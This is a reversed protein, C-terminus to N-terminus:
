LGDYILKAGVLLMMAYILRYFRAADIRRVVHVGAWTSLLAVPALMASHLLNAHTFQGLAAYGPVKIWNMFAFAIATTGVLVDRPLRRPLVWMQFPPAGAHAVHSVFGSFTGFLTGVWAPSDSPLTAKHGREIWLRQLGFLVTVVGVVLLVTAESVLRSFLYGLVVGLTMGPMMARLVFGDWSRRFSWVGVADQVILIPLMVAASEVLPNALVMIPMALGGLGAFGGKAMGSIVVAIVACAIGAPSALMGGTM